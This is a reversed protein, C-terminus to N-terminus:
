PPGSRFPSKFHIPPLREAIQSHCRKMLARSCPGPMHSLPRETPPNPNQGWDLSWLRCIRKHHFISNGDKYVNNINNLQETVDSEKCGWPNCCALGGQGDGVGLNVWVWTWQTPSAMWGDWGRNAGEEGAKLREWCQTRKWHTPEKCWTASTHSGWSWCCDKWYM